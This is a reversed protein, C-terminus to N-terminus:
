RGTVMPREISVQSRRVLLNILSGIVLIIGILICCLAFVNGYRGQDAEALIKQTLISTDPTVLFIIPSLTTMSHAFAYM